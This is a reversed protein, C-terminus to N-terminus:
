DTAFAACQRSLSAGLWSTEGQRRLCQNLPPSSPETGSDVQWREGLAM